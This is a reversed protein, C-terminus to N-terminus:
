HRFINSDFAAHQSHFILEMQQVQKMTLIRSLKQKSISNTKQHCAKLKCMGFCYYEQSQFWLCYKADIEVIRIKLSFHTQFGFGLLSFGDFAQVVM